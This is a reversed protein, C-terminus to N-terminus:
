HGEKHLPASPPPLSQPISAARPGPAPPWGTCVCAESCRASFGNSVRIDHRHSLWAGARFSRVDDKRNRRVTIFFDKLVTNLALPVVTTPEIHGVAENLAFRWPTDVSMIRGPELNRRKSMQRTARRPAHEIQIGITFNHRTRRVEANPIILSRGLTDKGGPVERPPEICRDDVAPACRSSQLDQVLKAPRSPHWREQQRSRIAIEVFIPMKDPPELGARMHLDHGLFPIRAHIAVTFHRVYKMM